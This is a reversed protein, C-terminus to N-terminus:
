CAGRGVPNWNQDFGAQDAGIAGWGPVRPDLGVINALIGGCHYYPEPIPNPGPGDPMRFVWADAPAMGRTKLAQDCVVSDQGGAAYFGADLSRNGQDTACHWYQLYTQSPPPAVATPTAAAPAPAPTPTAPVPTPTAVVPQSTPQPAQTAPPQTPQPASAVTTGGCAGLLVIGAIALVAYRLRKIM